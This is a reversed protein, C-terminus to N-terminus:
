DVAVVCPTAPGGEPGCENGAETAAADFGRSSYASVDALPETARKGLGAQSARVMRNAQVVIRDAVGVDVFAAVSGAGMTFHNGRVTINAFIPEATLGDLRQGGEM